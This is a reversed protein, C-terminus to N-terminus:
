IAPAHVVHASKTSDQSYSDFVQAISRIFISGIETIRIGSSDVEILDNYQEHRLKKLEDGFHSDFCLEWQQGFEKFDIYGNCMLAQILDRRVKDDQTLTLGKTVPSSKSEQIRNYDALNKTNQFYSNGIQSVSSLGVGLLTSASDTTYGQFNRRLIGAAQAIAMPDEATCFHDFGIAEYGHSLLRQRSDLLQTLRDTSSPRDYQQLLKQHPKMSPVHAYGFLAFRNIKRDVLFDITNALTATSQGPLGYMLDANINLFGSDRACQIVNGLTVKTCVRRVNQQVKPDLDQVGLSLRTFGQKQLTTFHAPTVVTPEVEVSLEANPLILFKRKVMHHLRELQEPTLYTPTGGGYHIAQIQLGPNWGQLVNLECDLSDLYKDVTSINKGAIAM